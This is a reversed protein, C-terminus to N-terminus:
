PRIQANAKVTYIIKDFNRYVAAQFFKAGSGGKSWNVNDGVMEHVPAAYFASFGLMVGIDHPTLEEQAQQIVESHGTRLKALTTQTAPVTAGKNSKFKANKIEYQALRYNGGKKTTIFFSAQLNGNDLPIFPVKVEMDRRIDIAALLFGKTTGEKINGIERNLNKMIIAFDREITGSTGTIGRRGLNFKTLINM